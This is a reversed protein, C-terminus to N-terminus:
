KWGETTKTIWARLEDIDLSTFWPVARVAEDLGGPQVDGSYVSIPLGPHRFHVYRVLAEGLGGVVDGDVYRPFNWDTIVAGLTGDNFAEQIAGRGTFHNEHISFAVGAKKLLRSLIEAKDARDEICIIKKM